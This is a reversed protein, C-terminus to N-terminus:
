MAGNDRAYGRVRQEVGQRMAILAIALTGAAAFWAFLDGIRTYLTPGPGLPVTAVLESVGTPAVRHQSVIRGEADVVSLFGQHASRVIAFGNEVGRLFSMRAHLWADKNFDGAPVAVLRVGRVADARITGPFDM